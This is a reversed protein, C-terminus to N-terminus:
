RQQVLLTQYVAAEGIGETSPFAKAANPATMRLSTRSPGCAATSVNLETSDREGDM